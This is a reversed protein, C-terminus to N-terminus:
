GSQAFFAVRSGGPLFFNIGTKKKRNKRAQTFFFFAV